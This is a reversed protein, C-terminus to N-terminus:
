KKSSGIQGRKVPDKVDTCENLRHGTVDCFVCKRNTANRVYEKVTNLKGMTEQSQVHTLRKEYFEHIRTPNSGYVIPLAMIGQLHVNVTKSVKGHRLSLTNKARKYGKTSFPLGDILWCVKPKFVKELCSLQSISPLNLKDIEVEFQNWFKIWDFHSGDFKKIVLKPLKVIASSSGAGKRDRQKTILRDELEHKETVGQRLKGM